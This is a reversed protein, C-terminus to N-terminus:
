AAADLGELLSCLAVATNEPHSLFPAHAAGAIIKCRAGSLWQSLAEAVGAPVLTDREGFLWGVPCVLRPLHERLDVTQLLKLGAALARPNPVPHERLQRKLERLSERAQEGSRVQLALFRELTKLHDERSASIFQMLTQPAMAEPWDAAQTFRPTGCVSVLARIRQPAQLAAQIAIEAGLSWGVWVARRPVADLCAVAWQALDLEDAFDSAGHGPLDILWLRHSGALREAFGGWVTSNMGWGHLLVLDPGSGMQQMALSM